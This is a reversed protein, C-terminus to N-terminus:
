VKFKITKNKLNVDYGIMFFSFFTGFWFAIDVDTLPDSILDSLVGTIITTVFSSSFTLIIRILVSLISLLIDKM